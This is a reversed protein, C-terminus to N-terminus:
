ITSNHYNGVNVLIRYQKIGLSKSVQTGLYQLMISDIPKGVVKCQSRFNAILYLDLDYVQFQISILCSNDIEEENVVIVEQRSKPNNTLNEIVRSLKPMIKPGYTSLNVSYPKFEFEDVIKFPVEYHFNIRKKM